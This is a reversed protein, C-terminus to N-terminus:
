NISFNIRGKFINSINNKFTKLLEHGDTIKELFNLIIPYIELPNKSKIKNHFEFKLNNLNKELLYHCLLEIFVQGNKVDEVNNVLLCNPENITNIWDLLIQKNNLQPYKELILKNIKFSSYIDM